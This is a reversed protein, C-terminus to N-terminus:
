DDGLVEVKIPPEDSERYTDRPIEQKLSEPTLEWRLIRWMDSAIMDEEQKSIDCRDVLIEGVANLMRRAADKKTMRRVLEINNNPRDNFGRFALREALLDWQGLAARFYEELAANIVRLQNETLTLKLKRDM